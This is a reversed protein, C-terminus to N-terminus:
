WSSSAGGGSFSGGSFGGFSSGSSSSDSSGSDSSSSWGSSLSGAAFGTGFGSGFSSGGSYGDSDSFAGIIVVIVIIIVFVIALLFFPSSDTADAQPGEPTLIAQQGSPSATITTMMADVGEEFGKDYNGSKFSPKVIDDLIHASKVDTLKDELGQGVEIRMKRDDIAAFFIAGNDTEKQGPKWEEALAITYDELVNGGLTKITVVAIQSTTDKEFQSLKSNIRDEAPQSIVNAYDSVYNTPKPLGTQIKGSVGTVFFSFIVVAIILAFIKKM